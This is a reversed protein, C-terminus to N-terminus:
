QQVQAAALIHSFLPWDHSQNPIRVIEIDMAKLIAENEEDLKFYEDGEGFVVKTPQQVEEGDYEFECVDTVLSRFNNFDKLVNWAYPFPITLGFKRSSIEGPVGIIQRAGKYAGRWAFGLSNYDVRLLPNFAVVDDVKTQSAMQIGVAGGISHGVIRKAGIKEQFGLTLEVCEDVTIPQPTLGPIGYIV